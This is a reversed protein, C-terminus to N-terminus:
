ELKTGSWDVQNIESIKSNNSNEKSNSKIEKSFFPSSQMTKEQEVKEKKKFKFFHDLKLDNSNLGSKQAKQILIQYKEFESELGGKSLYKEKEFETKQKQFESKQQEFKFKKLSLEFKEKYPNELKKIKEM